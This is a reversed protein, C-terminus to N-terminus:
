PALVWNLEDWEDRLYEAPRLGTLATFDNILHSQDYYGYTAALRSWPTSPAREIHRLVRQLRMVRSFMKPKLGVRREFMAILRKQSVGVRSATHRVTVTEPSAQLWHLAYALSRDITLRGAARRLLANELIGLQADIRPEELLRERLEDAFSGWLCDMEVVTDTLDAVPGPIFPFAGGPRFHAGIMRSGVAGDVAIAFSHQGSIWSGRVRRVNRLDRDRWTRPRDTLDIVLEIAGDPLLRLPPSDVGEHYWLYEVHQLLPPSPPCIRNIMRERTIPPVM